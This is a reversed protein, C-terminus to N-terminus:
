SMLGAGVLVDRVMTNDFNFRDIQEPDLGARLNREHLELVAQVLPKSKEVLGRDFVESLKRKVHMYTIGGPGTLERCLQATRTLVAYLRPDVQPCEAAGANVDVVQLMSPARSRAGSATFDLVADLPPAETVESTTPSGADDVEM